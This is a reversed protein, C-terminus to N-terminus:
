DEGPEDEEDESRDDDKDEFPAVTDIIDNLRAALLDPDEEHDDEPAAAIEAVEDLTNQLTENEEELERIQALLQESESDAPKAKRAPNRVSRPNAVTGPSRLVSRGPNFLRIKTMSGGLPNELIQIKRREAYNEISEEEIEGARDADGLVDRVFRAAKEKRDELQTRTLTKM